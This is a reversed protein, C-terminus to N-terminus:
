KWATSQCVDVEEPQPPWWNKFPVLRDGLMRKATDTVMSVVVVPITHSVKLNELEVAPLGSHM